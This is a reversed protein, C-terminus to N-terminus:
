LEGNGMNNLTTNTKQFVCFKCNGIFLQPKKSVNGSYFHMPKTTQKLLAMNNQKKEIAQRCTVKSTRKPNAPLQEFGYIKEYQNPICNGNEDIEFEIMYRYIDDKHLKIHDRMMFTKPKKTSAFRTGTSSIEGSWDAGDLSPILDKKSVNM